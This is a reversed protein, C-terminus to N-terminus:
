EMGNWNERAYDNIAQRVAERWELGYKDINWRKLYAIESVNEKLWAIPIDNYNDTDEDGTELEELIDDIDFKHEQESYARFLEDSTLEIEVESEKILRQIKM